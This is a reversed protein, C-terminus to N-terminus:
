NLVDVTSSVILLGYHADYKTNLVEAIRLSLDLECMVEVRVNSSASWRGSRVGHTGRGRCDIITYGVVGLATLEDIVPQELAAECYVTVLTFTKAM